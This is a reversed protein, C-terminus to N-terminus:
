RKKFVYYKQNKNGTNNWSLKLENAKKDYSYSLIIKGKITSDAVAGFPMLGIILIEIILFATIKKIFDKLSIRM